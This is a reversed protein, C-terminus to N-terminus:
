NSFEDKKCITVQNRGNQKSFYVAEDVKLIIQEPSLIKNIEAIGASVTVRYCSEKGENRLTDMFEKLISEVEEPTGELVGVFEDGGWRAAIGRGNMASQLSEGVMALIANGFLHGHNDNIEKFHDIDFMFFSKKKEQHKKLFSNYMKSFLKRNPLGTLEDINEVEIIRRNFNFFVATTVIICIMLSILMFIVNDMIGAQFSSSISNMDKELILYWGLTDDYKTIICKRANNSTFWQMKPECSYDMIIKEEVGTRKSLEEKKIFVDTGDSFSNQSGGVNIIYASLDYNDEYSRIISEIDSVELGVGIVGLLEGDDSEMRVNIFATIINNSVENTDIQLEYEHGSEIFYYYWVDHENNISITKNLGDQYYYNGTQNSVCFVTTYGYKEKYANLYSYLQQMYLENNQNEKEKLFWKKLFEDNAMTKSVMVPKTMSNEIHKSIDTDALSVINELYKETLSQYSRTQKYVVGIFGAMLSFIIILNSILLIHKKM